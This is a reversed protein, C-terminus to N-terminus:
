SVGKFVQGKSSVNFTENLHNITSLIDGSYM